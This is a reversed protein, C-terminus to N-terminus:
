ETWTRRRVLAARTAARVLRVELVAVAPPTGVGARAQVIWAEPEVTAASVYEPFRRLLEDRAGPSLSGPFSTIDHVADGRLRMEMIRSVAELSFGPISALVPGPAHNLPVRGPDVSIMTDIGALRGWGRVRLVERADALPGNRPVPLRRSRYWDAEAGFQRPVDDGDRWDAFADVLSDVSAETAGAASLFRRIGDEPVTNVDLAAGATRFRLDCGTGELLPSVAVIRDIRAWVTLGPGEDRAARLAEAMAARAREMCGEALWAADTGDARNRASAVAERAAIGGLLALASMGVVIWLVAILAFGGRRLLPRM